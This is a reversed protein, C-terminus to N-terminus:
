YKRLVGVVVGRIEVREPYIPSMKPNAPQLRIRGEPELYFKKLTADGGPLIAVVTEGNVATSRRECIVYDGERIQEDIM